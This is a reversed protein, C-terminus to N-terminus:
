QANQAVGGGESATELRPQAVVGSYQSAAMLRGGTWAVQHVTWGANWWKWTRSRPDVAFILTSESSTVMMRGMGADWRLSNIAVVPLRRLKTWTHGGDSTYFVGERGGGWLTGEPTAALADVATLGSPFIVPEWKVGGDASMVIGDRRAAYVTSGQTAIAIYNGLGSFFGADPNGLVPGTWSSGDDTSRFVGQATAAYWTGDAAALATIRGEIERTGAGRAYRRETEERWTERQGRRPENRATEAPPDVSNAPTWVAGDRRFIGDSTGALLTGDEGQALEFV